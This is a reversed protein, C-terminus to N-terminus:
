RQNILSRAKGSVSIFNNEHLPIIYFVTKRTLSINGREEAMNLNLAVKISPNRSGHSFVSLLVQRVTAGGPFLATVSCVFM